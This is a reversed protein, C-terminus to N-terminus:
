GERRLGKVAAQHLQNVILTIVKLLHEHLGESHTVLIHEAGTEGVVELSVPVVDENALGGFTYASVKKEGGMEYLFFCSFFGM